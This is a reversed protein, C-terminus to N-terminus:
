SHISGDKENYETQALSTGKFAINYLKLSKETHKNPVSYSYSFGMKEFFDHILYFSYRYDKDGLASGIITLHSMIVSLLKPFHVDSKEIIKTINGNAKVEEANMKIFSDLVLIEADELPIFDSGNVSLSDSIVAGYGELILRSGDTISSDCITVRTLPPIYYNVNGFIVSLDNKIANELTIKLTKSKVEFQDTTNVTWINWNEWYISYLLSHTNIRAYNLCFDVQKKAIKLSRKQGGVSKVEILLPHCDRYFDEFFLQYDPVQFELKSMAPFQSQDLQHVLRVWPLASITHQFNDEISYGRFFRDINGKKESDEIQEILSAVDSDDLKFKKKVDHILQIKDIDSM